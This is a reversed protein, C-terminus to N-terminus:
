RRKMQRYVMPGRSVGTDKGPMCSKGLFSPHLLKQGSLDETAYTALRHASAKEEAVPELM